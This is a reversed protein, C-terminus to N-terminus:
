SCRRESTHVHMLFKKIKSSYYCAPSVQLLLESNIWAVSSGAARLVTFACVVTFSRASIGIGFNGLAMVAFSLVCALYISASDDMKTWPDVLLPGVLCGIGVFGFLIGLRRESGKGGDVGRESFSVNLVDSAGYVLAACFKLLVFPAWSPNSQLYSWGDKTTSVMRAWFHSSFITPAVSPSPSYVIPAATTAQSRDVVEKPELNKEVRYSGSIKWVLFASVLYTVSDFVEPLGNFSM